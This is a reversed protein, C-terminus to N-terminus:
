PQSPQLSGEAELSKVKGLFKDLSGLEFAIRLTKDKLATTLRELQQDLAKKELDGISWEPPAEIKPPKPEEIRAKVKRPYVPELPIPEVEEGVLRLLYRSRSKDWPRAEEPKPLRLTLRKVKLVDEPCANECAGCYICFDELVRIKEAGKVPYIANVPCINFCNKCGIPDCKELRVIEVRGEFPKEVKLAEVPCFAACVGCYVCKEEEFELNGEVKVEGIRRRPAYECEVKVAEVPCIQECLGCYDCKEESVRIGIAPKFDPPKPQEWFIEIAECLLECLGCYVCKEEDIVIRGRAEEPKGEEYIVLDEKRPVKVEAKLAERPCIKECLLCPLCKERDIEHSGSVKVYDAVAQGDMAMTFANFLCASVCLSCFTCKEVELNILPAGELRGAAVEVVFGKSIAEWPCSDMCLTCGVCKELRYLLHKALPTTKWVFDLTSDVVEMAKEPTEAM